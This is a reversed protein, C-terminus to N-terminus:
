LMFTLPNELYRKLAQMWRAGVAGDVSRHDAFPAHLKPSLAVSIAYAVTPYHIVLTILSLTMFRFSVSISYGVFIITYLVVLV